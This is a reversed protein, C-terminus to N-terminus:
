LSYSANLDLCECRSSLNSDCEEDQNIFRHDLASQLEFKAIQDSSRLQLQLEILM